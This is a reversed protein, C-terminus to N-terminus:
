PTTFHGERRARARQGKEKRKGEGGRAEGRKMGELGRLWPPTRANVNRGANNRKTAHCVCLVEAEGGGEGGDEASREKEKKRRREEREAGRSVRRRGEEGEIGTDTGTM